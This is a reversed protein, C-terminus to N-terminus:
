GSAFRVSMIPPFNSGVCKWREGRDDSVYLNGTTTGFAVTDGRCDLAHRYTVDFANEQPLGRRLVSWSKGGDDTRAVCLAGDKAYRKEDSTAPVVWARAPDANDVAIAFGFGVVGKKQGIDTWTKGGNTTRYVGCHNQQWLVDPERACAMVFHPDQGVESKQDPLFAAVTGKNRPEWSAGGDRTEFVGAASIGIYVHQADRPDVVVSHLGPEDFDKGGQIWKDRTRHTWLPDCLEFTTGNDDSAFLGGPVTGVYLRKPEEKRGPALVYIYRLTPKKKTAPTLKARAPFRPPAVEQWKKGGNPSKSLKAGWHGHDFAAWLTDTRDDHFAFSVSLGPHQIPQASWGRKGKRLILVGKKTGLVLNRAM